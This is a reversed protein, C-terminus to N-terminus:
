AYRRAALFQTYNTQQHSMKVPAECTKYTWNNGGGRDGKAAIFDLISVNLYQSYGLDVQFIAM